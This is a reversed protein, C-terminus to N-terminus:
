TCQWFVASIRCPDCWLIYAIGGSGWLWERGGAFDPSDLQALFHMRRQCDPCRRYDPDQIWTPEGGIRNLNERDNAYAWDQYQWRGPTPALSVQATPLPQEPEPVYGTDAGPAGFAAEVHGSSDHRFFMVPIVWGLCTLCAALELAQCTSVGLGAPIAPLHLLRHLQEGCGPCPGAAALGGFVATLGPAPALDWTPHPIPHSAGAWQFPRLFGEPFRLHYTGAPALRTPPEGNVDWAVYHPDMVLFRPVRLPAAAARAVLSPDRTQLLCARARGAELDDASELLAVQRERLMPNTAGRWPWPESYSNGNVKLDWLQDLYGALLSPDQLSVHAIVNAAQSDGPDAGAALLAVSHEAERALVQADVLGVLADVAPSSRALREIGAHLLDPLVEPAQNMLEALAGYPWHARAALGDVLGLVDVQPM